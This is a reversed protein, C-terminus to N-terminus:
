LRRNEFRAIVKERLVSVLVYLLAALPAFILVPWFVAGLIVEPNEKDIKKGSIAYITAYVLTGIALWCIAFIAIDFM